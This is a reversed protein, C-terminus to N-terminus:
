MRRKQISYEAEVDGWGDRIKSIAVYGQSLALTENGYIVASPTLSLPWNSTTVPIVTALACIREAMAKCIDWRTDFLDVRPKYKKSLHQYAHEVRTQQQRDPIQVAHMFGVPKAEGPRASCYKKRLQCAERRYDLAEQLEPLRRPWHKTYTPM